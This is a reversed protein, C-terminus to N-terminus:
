FRATMVLQFVRERDMGAASTAAFHEKANDWDLCEIRVFFYSGIGCLTYRVCTGHWELLCQSGLTAPKRHLNRAGCMDSKDPNPLDGGKFRDEPTMGCLGKLKNMVTKWGNKTVTNKISSEIVSWMGRKELWDFAAPYACRDKKCLVTGCDKNSAYSLHSQNNSLPVKTTKMLVAQMLAFHEKGCSDAGLAITMPQQSNYHKRAVAERWLTNARWTIM